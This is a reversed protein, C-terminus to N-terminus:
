NKLRQNSLVYYNELWGKGNYLLPTQFCETTMPIFYQSVGCTGQPLCKIKM